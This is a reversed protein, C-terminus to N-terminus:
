LMKYQDTEDEEQDENHRGESKGAAKQKPKLMMPPRKLQREPPKLSKIHEARRKREEIIVRPVQKNFDEFLKERLNDRDQIEELLNDIEKLYNMMEEELRVLDKMIDVKKGDKDVM